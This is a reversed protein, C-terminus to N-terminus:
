PTLTRGVVQENYVAHFTLQSNTPIVRSPAAGSWLQVLDATPYGIIVFVGTNALRADLCATWQLLLRLATNTITLLSSTAQATASFTIATGILTMACDIQIMHNLKFASFSDLRWTAPNTVTVATATFSQGDTIAAKIGTAWAPITALNANAKKVSDDFADFGDASDPPAPAPM